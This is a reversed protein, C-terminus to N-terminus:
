DEVNRSRLRSPEVIESQVAAQRLRDFVVDAVRSESYPAGAKSSAFEAVFKFLHIRM